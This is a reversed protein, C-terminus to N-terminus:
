ACGGATLMTSSRRSLRSAACEVFFSRTQPYAQPERGFAMLGFLTPHLAGDGVIILGGDTNAFACIATGVARLDGPGRKFEINRGEGAEICALVQPWDM